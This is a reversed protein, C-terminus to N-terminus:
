EGAGDASTPPRSEEEDPADDFSGDVRPQCTEFILYGAAELEDLQDFVGLHDSTPPLDVAVIRSDARELSAGFPRLLMLLDEQRERETIEFRVRYTRHGSPEVVEQIQLIGDAGRTARVIDLYSLGYAFFPVNELRYLDVGLPSAWFTESNIAWHNPLEVCVKVLGEESMQVGLKQEM